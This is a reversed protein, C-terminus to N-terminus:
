EEDENEDDCAVNFWLYSYEEDGKIKVEFDLVYSSIVKREDHPNSPKTNHTMGLDKYHEIIEHTVLGELYLMVATIVVSRVQSDEMSKWVLEERDDETGFIRWDEISDLFFMVDKEIRQLLLESM